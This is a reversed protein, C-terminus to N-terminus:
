ESLTSALSIVYDFSNDRFCLSRGDCQVLEFSPGNERMGQRAQVVTSRDVDVDM